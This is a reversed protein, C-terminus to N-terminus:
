PFKATFAPLAGDPVSSPINVVRDELWLSDALGDHQCHEFMRLRSMMRWVPRTMVGCSNTFELFADREALSNLVIANLWHNATTGEAAQLFPIGASDFFEAYRRAVDAKAALM